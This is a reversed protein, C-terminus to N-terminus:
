GLASRSAAVDETLANTLRLVDEALSKRYPEDELSVVNIEVNAAAGAAAAELLELATRVDSTAARNSHEAIALAHKVADVVTQLTALPADTATRLARQIAQKRAAQEEETAKPLRYSALVENFADSDKDALNLM